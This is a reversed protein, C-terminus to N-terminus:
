TVILADEGTRLSVIVNEFRFGHDAYLDGSIYKGDPSWRPGLDDNPTTTLTELKLRHPIATDMDYILLSVAVVVTVGIFMRTTRM